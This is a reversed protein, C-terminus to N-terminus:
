CVVIVMSDWCAWLVGLNGLTWRGSLRLSKCVGGVCAQFPQAMTVSLSSAVSLEDGALKTAFAEQSESSHARTVTSLM